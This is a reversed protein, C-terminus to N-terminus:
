NLLARLHTLPKTSVGKEQQQIGLLAMGKEKMPALISEEYFSSVM